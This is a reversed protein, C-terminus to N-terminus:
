EKEFGYNTFKLARCNENFTHVVHESTGEPLEAHIEMAIDIRAGLLGSLHQADKEIVSTASLVRQTSRSPATSANPNRDRPHLRLRHSNLQRPRATTESNASVATSVSMQRPSNPGQADLYAALGIEQCVGAVIGLPDLRESRYTEAEAVKM